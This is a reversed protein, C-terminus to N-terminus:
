VDANNPLLVNHKSASDTAIEIGRLIDIKKAYKEKLLTLYNFYRVLTNGYDEDPHYTGKDYCFQKRALGVGYNHDCIGIQKIGNAIATEVVKQPADPSDFSFYTHAHLDQIM